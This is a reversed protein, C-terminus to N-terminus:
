KRILTVTIDNTSIGRKIELGSGLKWLPESAAHDKLYEFIDVGKEDAEIATYGDVIGGGLCEPAGELNLGGPGDTGDTDVSGIVIKESGKIRMAASLCFEQNRGGVGSAKGVTVLLEGTTVLAAPPDLPEGRESINLAIAATMQAASKAETILTRTLVHTNYGLEIAKDRAAKMGGDDPMIGFFRSNTGMYEDYKVTARAPDAKYIVDLISKPCEDKLDHMEIVQQADEFTSADPLNHLWRNTRMTYEYNSNIGKHQSRRYTDTGGNADTGILHYMKAPHFARTIRGAKLQDINNRIANLDNTHLGKDIQVLHTIKKVDEISIGEFPLTLLASGGNVIITFVLDKETIGKSLELIKKAGAVCGEDPTPHAGYTNGVRKLIPEDGHKSIVEGGTLWDGLVDEIAKAVRQVGKGAGVVYIRDYDNLDLTDTGSKPDGEAEFRPNGVKLINGDLELLARTNEYPDAAQLGAELIKLMDRRGEINGHSAVQEGNLIRM